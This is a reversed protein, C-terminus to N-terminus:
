TKRGVLTAEPAGADRPAEAEAPSTAAREHGAARETALPMDGSGAGSADACGLAFLALAGVGFVGMLGFKRDGMTM